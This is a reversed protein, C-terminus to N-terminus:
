SIRLSIRETRGVGGEQSDLLQLVPAARAQLTGQSSEETIMAMNNGLSPSGPEEGAKERRSKPSAEMWAGGSHLAQHRCWGPSPLLQPFQDSLPTIPVASEPPNPSGPAMSHPPCPRHTLCPSNQLRQWPRNNQPTPVVFRLTGPLPAGSPPQYTLNKQRRTKNSGLSVFCLGNPPTPTYFWVSLSSLAPTTGEGLPAVTVVGRSCGWGAPNPTGPTPFSTLSRHQGLFTAGFGGSQPCWSPKTSLFGQEPLLQWNGCNRSLLFIKRRVSCCEQPTVTGASPGQETGGLGSLAGITPAIKLLGM